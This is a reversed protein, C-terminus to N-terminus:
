RVALGSCVRRFERDGRIRELQWGEFAAPAQYERRASALDGRACHTKILNLRALWAGDDLALARELSAAAAAYDGSRFEAYGKYNWTDPDDGDIALAQVYMRRAADFDKNWRYRKGVLKVEENVQRVAEAQAPPMLLQVGLPLGSTPVTLDYIQLGPVLELRTVIRRHGPASAHIVYSGPSLDLRLDAESQALDLLPRAADPVAVQVQIKGAIAGGSEDRLRLIAESRPHEDEEDDADASPVAPTAAHATPILWGDFPSLAVEPAGPPAVGDSPSAVSLLALVSFGRAFADVRTRPEHIWAVLIGVVIVFVLAMLAAEVGTEGVLRELVGGLRVVAGNHTQNLLDGIALLLAGIGSAAYAEYRGIPVSDPLLPAGVGGSDNIDAM